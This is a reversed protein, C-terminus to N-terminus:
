ITESRILGYYSIGVANDSSLKPGAFYFRCQPLRIKLQQTIFANSGVGGVIMVEKIGTEKVGQQLVAALSSVACIEIGRALDWPEITSSSILREVHSLPGSFSTQCGKISVPIPIPNSSECALKELSPGCPFPLGLKVGIRDIFQGLPLDSSGGMMDMTLVPGERNVKMLETTGGSIHLILFDAPKEKLSFLGA